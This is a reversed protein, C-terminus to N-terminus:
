DGYSISHIEFIAEEEDEKICVHEHVYDKEHRM